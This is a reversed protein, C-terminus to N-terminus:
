GQVDCVYLARAPDVEPIGTITFTAGDMAVTDDVEPVAAPTLSAGLIGIRKGSAQVKGDIRARRNENYGQGTHTTPSVSPGALLNGPTRAGAVSKTLVLPRLGGAQTMSDNLVGAIDIGFLDTM